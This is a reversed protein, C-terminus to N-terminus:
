RSLRIGCSKKWKPLIRMPRWFDTRLLVRVAGTRRTLIPRNTLFRIFGYWWVFHRRFGFPNLRCKWKM